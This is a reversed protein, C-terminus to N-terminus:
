LPGQTKRSNRVITRCMSFVFGIRRAVKFAYHDFAMTEEVAFTDKSVQELKSPRLVANTLVVCIFKDFLPAFQIAHHPHM